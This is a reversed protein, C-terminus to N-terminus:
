PEVYWINFDLNEITINLPGGSNGLTSDIADSENVVFAGQIEVSNDVDLVIVGSYGSLAAVFARKVKLMKEQTQGHIVFRISLDVLGSSGEMTYDRPGGGVVYYVSPYKPKQPLQNPYLRTSILPAIAAHTTLYKFLAERIM